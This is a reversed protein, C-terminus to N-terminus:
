MLCSLSRSVGSFTKLRSKSMGYWILVGKVSIFFDSAKFCLTQLICKFRHAEPARLLDLAELHIRRSAFLRYFADSDM